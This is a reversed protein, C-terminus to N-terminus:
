REDFSQPASFGVPELERADILPVVGVENLVIAPRSTVAQTGEELFSGTSRISSLLNWPLRSSARFAGM